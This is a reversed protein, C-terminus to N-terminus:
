CYELHREDSHGIIGPYDGTRNFLPQLARTDILSLDQKRLSVQSGTARTVDLVGLEGCDRPTSGAIGLLITVIFGGPDKGPMILKALVPVRAAQLGGRQERGAQTTATPVWPSPCQKGVGIARDPM